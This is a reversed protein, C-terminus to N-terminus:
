APATGLVEDTDTKEGELYARLKDIDAQINGIDRAKEDESKTALDALALNYKEELAAKDEDSLGNISKLSDLIEDKKAQLEQITRIEPAENTAPVPATVPAEAPAPSPTTSM